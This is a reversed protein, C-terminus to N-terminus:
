ALQQASIMRGCVKWGPHGRERLPADAAARFGLTGFLYGELAALVEAPAPAAASASAGATAAEPSSPGPDPRPLHHAAFEEAYADVREVFPAVPVAVASHSVLADDEVAILLAAELVDFAEDERRM